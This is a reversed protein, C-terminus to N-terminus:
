QGDVVKACASFTLDRHIGSTHHDIDPFRPNGNFRDSWSNRFLRRDERHSLDLGFDGSPVGPAPLRIAGAGIESLKMSSGSNSGGTLLQAVRFRLEMPALRKLVLEQERGHNGLFEDFTNGVTNYLLQAPFDDLADGPFHHRVQSLQHDLFVDFSLEFFRMWSVIELNKSLNWYRL